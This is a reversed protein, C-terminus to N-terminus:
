HVPGSDFLKTKEYKVCWFVNGSEKQWRRYTGLLMLAKWSCWALRSCGPSAAKWCLSCCAGSCWTDQSAEPHWKGVDHGHHQFQVRDFSRAKPVGSPLTKVPAEFIYFKEVTQSLAGVPQQLTDAQSIVGLIRPWYQFIFPSFLWQFWPSM